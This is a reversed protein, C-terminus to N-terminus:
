WSIRSECFCIRNSRKNYISTKDKMKLEPIKALGNTHSVQNYSRHLMELTVGGVVYKAKGEVYCKSWVRNIKSTSTEPDLLWATAKYANQGTYPGVNFSAFMPNLQNLLTESTYTTQLAVYAVQDAKLYITNAGDGFYNDKDVYFIRYTANSAYNIVPQGYYKDPNAIIEEATVPVGAKVVKITIVTSISTSIKGSVTVTTEGEAVGTVIGNEDVSAISLNASEYKLEEVNEAPVTTVEIKEISGKEIEMTAKTPAITTIKAIIIVTCKAQYDTGSVSAIIEATGSEGIATINGNEVTAISSDSTSWVISGNVGETKTATIRENEGQMLKVTTKSVSIGSIANVKGEETIQFIYGDKKITWPLKGNESKEIEEEKLGVSEKLEKELIELNIVHYNAGM